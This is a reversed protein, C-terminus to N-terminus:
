TLVRLAQPSWAFEVREATGHHDGDLQLDVAPAARVEFRPLDHLVVVGPDREIDRGGRLGASLMRLSWGLEMRRFATVALPRHFGADPALTIPVPGVYTYHSTNAVMLHFVGDIRSGDPLHISLAPRRRDARVFAELASAAYAVDGVARRLRRRREVLRVTAGDLGMGATFGFLEGNATGLGISRPGLVLARRLHAVAPRTAEPVGLTRALVNTGGAPVIGLPVSTGALAPLVDAVTGDGGLVVVAEAGDIVADRALEGGEGAHSTFELDVKHEPSLGARVIEVRRPTVRSAHPNALLSLRAM